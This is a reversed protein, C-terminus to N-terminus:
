AAGAAVLGLRELQSQLAQGHEDALAAQRLAAVTAAADPQNLLRKAADMVRQFNSGGRAHTDSYGKILRRCHLVEVALPYDHALTQQAQGLWADIAAMERQHRLNGRRLRRLAALAYLQLFGGLRHTEIRQGHAFRRKVWAGFWASRELRAGLRAPLVGCIEPLAPRTFETLNLLQDDKLGTESAVRAFRSARTKLDAVRIPDDYSLAVALYRAAAASYQWQRQEGGHRRDLEWQQDIRALYDEAYAADQYDALRRVGAVLWPQLEAPFRRIRALLAQMAPHAAQAPVAPLKNPAVLPAPSAPAARVAAYGLAFARLSADVAVGSRRITDEFQERSFPLTASGALAGFLVASIVSGGQEALQQMDCCLFRRAATQGAELVKNSDAIGNGMAAKEAVALSRHSSAILTTRDPTVLGRQIARGAEMLEAAIVIDVDGRGPMMALVPPKGAQAADAEPLLELYYITAGTRQAVGPVSTTQAWWGHHEGLEVIWDALVGGGQGGMALVAIKIPTGPYLRLTNM